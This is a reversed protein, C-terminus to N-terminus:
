DHLVAFDDLLDNSALGVILQFSRDVRVQLSFSGLLEGAVGGRARERELIGGRQLALILQAAQFDTEDSQRRSAALDDVPDLAGCLARM